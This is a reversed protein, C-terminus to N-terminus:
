PLAEFEAECPLVTVSDTHFIYENTGAAVVIRYGAIEGETYQQEPRPCGLSTDPWVFPRMEVLQIRRNPLDLEQSLRRQVLQFMEAAVSDVTILLEDSLAEANSCRLFRDNGATHYHYITDGVLLLYRLGAIPEATRYREIAQILDLNANTECSLDNGYWIGEEITVLQIHDVAIALETALHQFIRQTLAHDPTLEVELLPTLPTPTATTVLDNPDILDPPTATPTLPTATATSTAPILTFTPAPVPTAINSCAALAGVMMLACLIKALSDSKM